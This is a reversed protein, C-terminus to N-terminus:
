GESIWARLVQAVRVSDHLAAAEVLQRAEADAPPLKASDNGVVRAEATVSSQEASELDRVTRPLDLADSPQRSSRRRLAVIAVIALALLVLAAGGVSVIPVRKRWIQEVLWPSAAPPGPDRRAFPVARITVRDGRTDSFGVAQKIVNELSAIQIRPQQAPSEKEGDEPSASAKPGALAAQDVLVAVSLRRLEGAPSVQRRIRKSLEYNRTVQKHSGGGTTGKSAKPGGPLNGKVGAVGGPLTAPAGTEESSTESRVAPNDSDYQENTEEVQALALDATVKVVSNGAGLAHNLIERVRHELDGEMQSRYQFLGDPAGVADQRGGSLMNGAGDIVAVAEPDLNSVASSVLHVIGKVAGRSLSRGGHLRLTVSATVPRKPRAFVQRAPIAIHVRASAVGDVESITRELEGQLARRYNVQQAFDSVGFKQDDFIEFGVGGGKPLGRGALQLRLEHVADEPVLIAAGGAELRFPVKNKRLEETIRAADSTSLGAFLTSYEHHDASILYALGGITGLTAIVTAARARWSLRKVLALLQTKLKEVSPSM